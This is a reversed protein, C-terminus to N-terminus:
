DRVKRKGLAVIGARGGIHLVWNKTPPAGMGM